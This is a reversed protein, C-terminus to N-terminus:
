CREIDFFFFLVAARYSNMEETGARAIWTLKDKGARSAVVPTRVPGGDKSSPLLAEHLTHRAQLPADYVSCEPQACTLRTWSEISQERKSSTLSRCSLHVWRKSASLPKWSMMLTSLRLTLIIPSPSNKPHNPHSHLAATRRDVNRHMLGACSWSRAMTVCLLSVCRTVCVTVGARWGRMGAGRASCMGTSRSPLDRSGCDDDWLWCTNSLFTTSGGTSRWAYDACGGASRARSGGPEPHTM